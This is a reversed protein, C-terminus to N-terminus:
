PKERSAIHAKRFAGPSMGYKDSFLKYFYSSNDYGVKQRIEEVSLQSQRLWQAAVCLRRDQLLEKFTQGTHQKMMKSLRYSPQNLANSIESLTASSFNAHIYKLTSMVVMNDYQVDNLTNDFVIRAFEELCSFLLTMQYQNKQNIDTSSHLTTWVMNEILNQIPLVNATSFHIFHERLGNHFMANSLFSSISSNPHVMEMSGALLLEPLIMFSVALDKEGAADMQHYTMQNLFLLDGEELLIRSDDITHVTSGSCMYVIEIFEHRHRPMPIFRTNRRIDLLRGERLMGERHLVDGCRSLYQAENMEGSRLSREEQTEQAMLNLLEANM